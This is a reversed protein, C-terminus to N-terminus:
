PLALDKVWQTLGSIPGADEHNSTQNTLQHAVVPVGVSFKSPLSFVRYSAMIISAHRIHKGLGKSLLCGRSGQHKFRSWQTILTEGPKGPTQSSRGSWQFEMLCAGLKGKLTRNGENPLLVTRPYSSSGRKQWRKKTTKQSDMKSDEKDKDQNM